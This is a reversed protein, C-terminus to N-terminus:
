NVVLALGKWPASGFFAKLVRKESTLATPGREAGLEACLIVTCTRWFGVSNVEAWVPVGWLCGM